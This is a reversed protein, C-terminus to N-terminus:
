LKVLRMRTIKGRYVILEIAHKHKREYLLRERKPEDSGSLLESYSPEGCRKLAAFKDDGLKVVGQKCRFTKTETAAAQIAYSGGLWLTFLMLLCKKKM